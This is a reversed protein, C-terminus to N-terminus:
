GRLSGVIDVGRAGSLSGTVGPGAGGLGSVGPRRCGGRFHGLGHLRLAFHRDLRYRFRFRLRRFERGRRVPDPAAAQAHGPAAPGLAPPSSHIEPAVRIASIRTVKPVIVRASAIRSKGGDEHYPRRSARIREPPHGVHFWVLGECSEKVDALDELLECQAEGGQESAVAAFAWCADPLMKPLATAPSVTTTCPVPFPNWRSTSTVFSPLYLRRQTGVPSYVDGDLMGVTRGLRLRYHDSRAGACADLLRSQLPEASIPDRLVMALRGEENGSACAPLPVPTCAAHREIAQRRISAASGAGHLCWSRVSDPLLEPRGSLGSAPAAGTARAAVARLSHCTSRSRSGNRRGYM